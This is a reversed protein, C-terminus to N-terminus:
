NLTIITKVVYIFYLDHIILGKNSMFNVKVELSFTMSCKKVLAQLEIITDFLSLRSCLLDAVIWLIVSSPADLKYYGLVWICVWGLVYMATM